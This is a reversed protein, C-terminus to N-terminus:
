IDLLDKVRVKFEANSIVECGWAVKLNAIKFANKEINVNVKARLL